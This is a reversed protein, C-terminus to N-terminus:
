FCPEAQAEPHVRGLLLVDKSEFALMITKRESQRRRPQDRAFPIVVLLRCRESVYYDTTKQLFFALGSIEFACWATRALCCGTGGELILQTGAGGLFEQEPLLIRM